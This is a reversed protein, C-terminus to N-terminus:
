YEHILFFHVKGHYAEVTRIKEESVNIMSAVLDNFVRPVAFWWLDQPHM